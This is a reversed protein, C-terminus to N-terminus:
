EETKKLNMQYYNLRIQLFDQQNIGKEILSQLQQKKAILPSLKSIAIYLEHKYKPQYKTKSIKDEVALSKLMPVTSEEYHIFLDIRQHFLMKIGSKLSKLDYKKLQNDREFSSHHEAGRIVGIMKGSLDEYSKIDIANENLAFFRFSLTEYAPYIYTLQQAREASYQLGVIVDLNGKQVEIIRRALPMTSIILDMGLQEAIYKLYHSHLGNEFEKAVAARLTNPQQTWANISQSVITLVVCFITKKLSFM